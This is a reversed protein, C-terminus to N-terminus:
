QLTNETNPNTFSAPMAISSSMLKLGSGGYPGYTHVFVEAEPTYFGETECEKWIKSIYSYINRLKMIDKEDVLHDLQINKCNDQFEAFSRSSKSTEGSLATMQDRLKEQSGIEESPLTGTRSAEIQAKVVIQNLKESYSHLVYSICSNFTQSLDVSIMQLYPQRIENIEKVEFDVEAMFENIKKILNNKHTITPETWRGISSVSYFTERSILIALKRFQEMTVEAKIITERMKAEVGFGKIFELKDFNTLLIMAVFMSAM